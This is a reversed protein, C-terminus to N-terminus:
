GNPFLRRFEERVAEIAEELACSEGQKHVHGRNPWRECLALYHQAAGKLVSAAQPTLHVMDNKVVAM